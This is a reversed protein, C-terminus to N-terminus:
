LLYLLEPTEDGYIDLIAIKGFFLDGDRYDDMKVSNTILLQNELLIDLYAETYFISEAVPTEKLPPNEEDIEESAENRSYATIDGLGPGDSGMGCAALLFVLM